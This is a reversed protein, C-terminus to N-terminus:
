ELSILIFSRTNTWKNQLTTSNRLSSSTNLTLAGNQNRIRTAVQSSMSSKLTTKMPSLEEKGNKKPKLAFKAPTVLTQNLKFSEM